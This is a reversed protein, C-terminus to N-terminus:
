SGKLLLMCKEQSEYSKELRGDACRTCFRSKVIKM